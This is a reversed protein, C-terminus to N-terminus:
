NGWQIQKIKAGLSNLKNDINEYGRLIYEINNVKTKGRAALGALILTAGGRLDTADVETGSLKKVGKIIAMKGEITNKAGMRKLESLYKFRNEFINEVIMSTGKATTLLGGFVSQLDTPFGPYPMTKIDTAKLRKNVSLKIIDKEIDIKCGMEELKHIVPIIHEPCTNTLEVNGCTIATMALLTGAEIRDPMINHGADKLKKVGRISIISTGAGKIKAGMKNLAKQLDVIEPELAANNITTEGEAMVAALMINETAGVSPFDLNIDTGIIKDASCKIYGEEEKVIIGLKEFGKLHLDIPRVGIDCGGPYSFVAKKFRTILAGALVVSSRLERMLKDPIKFEKINNSEIVVKGKNKKVKCGLLNLIQITKETDYIQPVNYLTLKPGLIGAALIPLSANKSGSVYTKGELKHGGEIIYSLM